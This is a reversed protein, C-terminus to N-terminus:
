FQYYGGVQSLNNDMALGLGDELADILDMRLLYGATSSEYQRLVRRLKRELHTADGGSDKLHGIDDGKTARDLADRVKLRLIVLEGNDGRISDATPSIYQGHTFLSCKVTILLSYM